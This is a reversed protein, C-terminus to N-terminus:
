GRPLIYLLFMFTAGWIIIAIQLPHDTLLVEDPAGGEGKVHILYLYRFLGYIVMPVTLLALNLGNVRITDAEITYMLFTIFTATTIMRLMDDILALTYHQFIPRTNIANEGLTVLEQRRKSVALFLALLGSCAYLWPSFNAVNIVVVGAIVRLIFGMMIAMVDLIVINKLIFTYSLQLVLYLILVIWLGSERGTQWMFTIILAIIPLLIAAIVAINEPLIGAAIPRYRKRPHQRDKEADVLDNIIYVTGSMIVLLGATAIVHLLSEINTLQRDFILAPFVFLINKTWQKPRM